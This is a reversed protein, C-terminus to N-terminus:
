LNEQPPIVRIVVEGRRTFKITKRVLNTMIQRVRMPDRDVAVPVDHLARM